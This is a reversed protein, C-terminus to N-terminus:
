IFNIIYLEFGWKSISIRTYINNGKYGTPRTVPLIPNGWMAVKIYIPRIKIIFCNFMGTMWNMLMLM